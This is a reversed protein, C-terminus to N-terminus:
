KRYQHLPMQPGVSAMVHFSIFFMLLRSLGRMSIWSRHWTVDGAMQPRVAINVSFM